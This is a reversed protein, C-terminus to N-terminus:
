ELFPSLRLGGDINVPETVLHKIYSIDQQIDPLDFGPNLNQEIVSEVNKGQFTLPLSAFTLNSAINV